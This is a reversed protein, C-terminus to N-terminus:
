KEEALRERLATFLDAYIDYIREVIEAANDEDYTHSAANRDEHLMRWGKEDAISRLACTQVGTV